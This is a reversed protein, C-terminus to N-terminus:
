KSNPVSLNKSSSINKEAPSKPTQWELPSRAVRTAGRGEGGREREREQDEKTRRRGEGCAVTEWDTDSSSLLSGFCSSLLSFFFFLHRLHTFTKSWNDNPNGSSWALYNLLSSRVVRTAEREGDESGGWSSIAMKLRSTTCHVRAASLLLLRPSM